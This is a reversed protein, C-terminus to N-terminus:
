PDRVEDYEVFWRKRSLFRELASYGDLRGAKKRWHTAVFPEEVFVFNFTEDQPDWDIRLVKAHLGYLHPSAMIQEVLQRMPEFSDGKSGEYHRLLDPWPQAKM